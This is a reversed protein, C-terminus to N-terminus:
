EDAALERRIAAVRREERIARARQAGSEVV